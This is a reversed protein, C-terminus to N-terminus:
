GLADWATRIERIGNAIGVGFGAVAHVLVAVPALLAIIIRSRMFPRITRRRLEREIETKNIM